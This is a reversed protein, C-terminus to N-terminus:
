ESGPSCTLVATISQLQVRTNVRGIQAANSIIRTSNEKDEKSHLHVIAKTIQRDLVYQLAHPQFLM